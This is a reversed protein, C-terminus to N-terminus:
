GSLMILAETHLGIQSVQLLCSIPGLIQYALHKKVIVVKIFKLFLGPALSIVSGM